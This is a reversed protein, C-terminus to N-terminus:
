KSAGGNLGGNAQQQQQQTSAAAAGVETLLHKVVNKGKLLNLRRIKENALHPSDSSQLRPAAALLLRPAKLIPVTCCTLDRM